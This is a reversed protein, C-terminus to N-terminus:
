VCVCYLTRIAVPISLQRKCRCSVVASLFDDLPICIYMNYTHIHVYTHLYTRMCRRNFLAAFCSFANKSDTMVTLRAFPGRRRSLYSPMRLIFSGQYYKSQSGNRQTQVFTNSETFTAEVIRWDLTAIYLSACIVADGRCATVQDGNGFLVELHTVTAVPAM